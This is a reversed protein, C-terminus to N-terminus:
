GNGKLSQNGNVHLCMFSSGMRWGHFHHLIGSIKLKSKSAADSGLSLGGGNAGICEDQENEGCKAWSNGCEPGQWAETCAPISTMFFLPTQLDKAHYM